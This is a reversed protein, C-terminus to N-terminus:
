LLLTTNTSVKYFDSESQEVFEEADEDTIPIGDNQFATIRKSLGPNAGSPKLRGGRINRVIVINCTRCLSKLHSTFMTIKLNVISM